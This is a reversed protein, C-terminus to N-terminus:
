ELYEKQLINLLNKALIQNGLPLVKEYNSYIEQDNKRNEPDFISSFDYVTIEHEVEIAMLDERYYSYATPITWTRHLTPYPEYSENIIGTERESFESLVFLNPELVVLLHGGRASVYENADLVILQLEESSYEIMQYISADSFFYLPYYHDKRAFKSYLASHELLFNHLLIRFATVKGPNQVKEKLSEVFTLATPDVEYLHPLYAHDPFTLLDADRTGVFFIVIDDQNIELSKIRAL